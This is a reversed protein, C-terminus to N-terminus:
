VPLNERLEDDREARMKRARRNWTRRYLHTVYGALISAVAVVAAGGILADEKVSASGGGQSFELGVFLLGLILTFQVVNIGFIAVFPSWGQIVDDEPRPRRLIKWNEVHDLHSLCTSEVSNPNWDRPNRLM